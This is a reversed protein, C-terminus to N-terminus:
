STLTSKGGIKGWWLGTLLSPSFSLSYGLTAWHVDTASLTSSKKPRWTKLIVDLASGLRM